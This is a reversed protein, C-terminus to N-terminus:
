SFARWRSSFGARRWGGCPARWTSASLITLLAGGLGIMDTVRILGMVARVQSMDLARRLIFLVLMQAGIGIFLTIDSIVHVFLALSYISM